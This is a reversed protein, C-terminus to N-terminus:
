STRELIEAKLERLGDPWPRKELKVKSDPWMISELHENRHFKGGDHVVYREYREARTSENVWGFHLIDTGSPVAQHARRRVGEPERGCALARDPIRGMLSNVDYLCPIPRPRWANDMRVWLAREDAKWIETMTLLWIGRRSHPLRRLKWGDAVFEDADIALLRINTDDALTWELLENRTMGENDFFSSSAEAIDVKEQESAWAFTGDDSHDDLLAIEDCFAQLHAINPKLYRALENHVVMSAVLNM